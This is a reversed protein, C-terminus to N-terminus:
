LSRYPAWFPQCPRSLPRVAPQQPSQVVKASFLIFASITAAFTTVLWCGLLSQSCRWQEHWFLTYQPNESDLIIVPCIVFLVLRAAGPASAWQRCRRVAQLIWFTWWPAGFHGLPDLRLNNAMELLKRLILKKIRARRRHSFYVVSFFPFFLFFSYTVTSITAVLTTALRGVAVGVVRALIAKNRQGCFHYFAPVYKMQFTLNMAEDPTCFSRSPQSMIWKFDFDM